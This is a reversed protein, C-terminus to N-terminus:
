MYFRQLEENSVHFSVYIFKAETGDNVTKPPYLQDM